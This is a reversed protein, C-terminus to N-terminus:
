GEEILVSKETQEGAEVKGCRVNVSRMNVM